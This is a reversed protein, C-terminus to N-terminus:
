QINVCNNVLIFKVVAYRRCVPAPVLGDGIMREFESLKVWKAASTEGPQMTLKEAPIDKHAIYIDVFASNGKHTLILNLERNAVEIGTEERLERRAADLSDEGAVVAGGTIEWMNPYPKKEPARKTILLEGKSNMTFIEVVRHYAGHPLKEGRVHTAGVPMGDEDLLDWLEAGRWADSDFQRSRIAVTKKWVQKDDCIFSGVAM